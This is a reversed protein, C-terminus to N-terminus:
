RETPGRDGSGGNGEARPQRAASIAAAGVPLTARVHTGKGIPSTVTLQGGLVDLRDALGLLGTGNALSAGGVGDDGSEVVLRADAEHARVEVHTAHSYRIANALTEACVFYAAAEVHPEYRRPSIDVGVHVPAAVALDAVAAAIGAESLRRPHVGRAFDRIMAQCDALDAALRDGDAPLSRLESGVEELLLLVGRHLEDELRVREGDAVLLLRRRSDTVEVLRSEIENALQANTVAMRTLTTVSTLLAADQLVSADHELVAVPQNGDRITTVVRGPRATGPDVSRGSEDSAYSNSPDVIALALTPDDLAEALRDRLSPVPSRGLDIALSMADPQSFRSLWSDALFFFAVSAVVVGYAALVQSEIHREALRGAAGVALVGWVAVASGLAVILARREAGRSRRCRAASVCGVCLAIVVTLGPSRGMPLVLGDIYAVLTVAFLARGHIRGRPYGLLLHTLPGRHALALPGVWGGLAWLAGVGALLAASGRRLRWIGVCALCCAAVAIINIM